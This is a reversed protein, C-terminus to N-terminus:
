GKRRRRRAIPPAPLGSFGMGREKSLVEIETELAQRDHDSPEGALRDRLLRLREAIWREGDIIRADVAPLM